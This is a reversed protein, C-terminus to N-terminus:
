FKMDFSYTPYANNGVGRFVGISFKLSKFYNKTFEFTIPIRLAIDHSQGLNENDTMDYINTVSGAIEYNDKLKFTYLLQPFVAHTEGDRHRPGIATSLDIWDKNVFRYMLGYYIQNTGNAEHSVYGHFDLDETIGYGWVIYSQGYDIVDGPNLTLDIDIMGKGAPTGNDYGGSSFLPMTAILLSSLVYKFKIM